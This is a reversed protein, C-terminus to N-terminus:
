SDTSRVRSADRKRKCYIAIWYAASGAQYQELLPADPNVEPHGVKSGVSIIRTGAEHMGLLSALSPPMACPFM